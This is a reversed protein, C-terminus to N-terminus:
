RRESAPEARLVADRDVRRAAGAGDHHAGNSATASPEAKQRGEAGRVFFLAALAGVAAAIGCIWVATHLDGAFSAAYRLKAQPPGGQPPTGLLAGVIAVGFVGGVQRATNNVSSAMGFREPPVSGMVAAAMPTSALGYGVGILAFVWGISGYSTTAEVRLLLLTGASVLGLGIAMPWRYGIRGVLRGALPGFVVFAISLPLFRLGTDTPSIRQVIEFFLSFLFLLGFLAFGMVLGAVNSGGFTRSRFFSLPLVPNETRREAFAFLVLCVASAAFLGIILPSGWGRDRGEIAGYAALGLMATALVQGIIDLHGHEPDRADRVARLAIVFAAAAIPLNIVFVSRWGLADVMGGGLIPGVALSVGAVGAWIGIAQAREREGTFTHTLIALTGPLELAAGIGQLARFGILWGSSPAIACLGSGVAFIALGTLFVRKHGYRDGLRGGILLLSALPLVYADVVWQLDSVGAHLEKGIKPLAVNVVTADLQMMFMGLCVAALVLTKTRRDTTPQTRTQIM